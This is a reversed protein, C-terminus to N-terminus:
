LTVADELLTDAKDLKDLIAQIEECAEIMKQIGIAATEGYESMQIADPMRHFANQESDKISVLQDNAADIMGAAKQIHKRAGMLFLKTENNM